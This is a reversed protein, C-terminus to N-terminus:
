GAPAGWELDRAGTGSGRTWFFATARRWRTAHLATPRGDWVKLRGGEFPEDTPVGPHRERRREGRRHTKEAGGRGPKPRYRTVFANMM